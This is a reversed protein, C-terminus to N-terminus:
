TELSDQNKKTNLFWSGSTLHTGQKQPIMTELAKLFNLCFQYM